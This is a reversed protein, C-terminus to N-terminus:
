HFDRSAPFRVRTEGRLDPREVEDARALGRRWPADAAALGALLDSRDELRHLILHIIPVAAADHREVRGEAIVLRAAVVAARFRDARDPYLVLNAIGWEDEVTFFVVGKASGPRQRVLVLGPLRLWAGRRAADLRRTDAMGLADLRPRLLRLPHHRLTLGTSTYDLVTEEGARARPLAADPEALDGRLPPAPGAEVGAAEWLAARRSLGLGRFADAEALRETAARDLGARRVLDGLSRAPRAAMVAEAAARPLGQALRMGLRLAPGTRAPGGPSGEAEAPELTCDWDSRLADVPLVRVGHERAERVIQAPAYFGMPQSNLLAAAFAPPHHRKIWASVYVLQAFAAAHSEPFGYTGFGEIQRFCREAFEEPYGNRAMGEVFERKFRRITGVHRFTAM